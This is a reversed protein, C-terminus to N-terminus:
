DPKLFLDSTTITSYGKISSGDIMIEGDMIKEIQHIPKEVAHLQGNLNIFQLQISKIGDQELRALIEKKTM